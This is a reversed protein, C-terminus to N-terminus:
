CGARAGAGGCGGHSGGACGRAGTLAHMAHTGCLKNTSLTVGTWALAAEGRRGQSRHGTGPVEVDEMVEELEEVPEEVLVLEEVEEEEAVAVEVAVAEMRGAATNFKSLMADPVVYPSPAHAAPYATAAATTVTQCCSRAATCSVTNGEEYVCVSGNSERM